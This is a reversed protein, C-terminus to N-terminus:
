LQLHHLYDGCSSAYAHLPAMGKRSEPSHCHCDGHFENCFLSDTLLNCVTQLLKFLLGKVKELVQIRGLSSATHGRHSTAFLLESTSKMPTVTIFTGTIQNEIIIFLHQTPFLFFLWHIQVTAAMPFTSTM